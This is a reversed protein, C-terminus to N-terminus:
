EVAAEKGGGERKTAAQPTDEQLGSDTEDELWANSPRPWLLPYHYHLNDNEQLAEMDLSQHVALWGVWRGALWVGLDDSLLLGYM